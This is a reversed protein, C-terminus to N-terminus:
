RLFENNNNKEFGEAINSSVSVIARRIQDRLGFDKGWLGDNTIKYIIGAFRISDQWVPLEEFKKYNMNLVLVYYALAYNTILLLFDWFVIISFEIVIIQPRNGYPRYIPLSCAVSTETGIQQSIETM